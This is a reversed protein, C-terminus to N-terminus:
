SQELSKVAQKLDDACRIGPKLSGALKLCYEDPCGCIGCECTPCHPPERTTGTPDAHVPFSAGQLPEHSVRRPSNAFAKSISPGPHLADDLPVFGLARERSDIVDMLDKERKKLRDVEMLRTAALEQATKVAAHLQEVKEVEKALNSDRQDRLLKIEARARKHLDDGHGLRSLLDFGGGGVQMGDNQNTM